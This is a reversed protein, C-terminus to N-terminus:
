LTLSNTEVIFVAVVGSKNSKRKIDLKKKEASARSNRKGSGGSWLTMDLRVSASSGPDPIM